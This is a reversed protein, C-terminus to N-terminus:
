KTDRGALQGVTQGISMIGAIKMILLVTQIACKQFILMHILNRKIPLTIIELSHPYHHYRYQPQPKEYYNKSKALNQKAIGEYFAPVQFDYYERLQYKQQFHNLVREQWGRKKKVVRYQLHEPSTLYLNKVPLIQYYATKGILSILGYYPYVAEILNSNRNIILYQTLNIAM